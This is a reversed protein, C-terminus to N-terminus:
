TMVVDSMEAPLLRDLARKYLVCGERDYAVVQAGFGNPVVKEQFHKAIDACIREVREPTKLLM